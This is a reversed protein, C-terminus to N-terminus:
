EGGMDVPPLHDIQLLSILEAANELSELNDCLSIV